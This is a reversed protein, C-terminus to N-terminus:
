MTGEAKAVGAPWTGRARQWTGVHSGADGDWCRRGGGVGGAM